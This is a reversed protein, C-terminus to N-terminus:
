KEEKKASEDAKAAEEVSTRAQVSGKLVRIKVGNGVDVMVTKDAVAFIKGIIGSQLVVDDGKKLAALMAQQEKAQKQQPRIMVFYLIAVIMAGYLLMSKGGDAGGFQALVIPFQTSIM